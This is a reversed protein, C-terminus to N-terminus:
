LAKRVARVAITSEISLAGRPELKATSCNLLRAGVIKSKVPLVSLTLDVTLLRCAVDPLVEHKYLPAESATLFNFPAEPRRATSSKVALASLQACLRGASTM